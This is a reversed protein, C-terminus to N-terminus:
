NEYEVYYENVMHKFNKFNVKNGKLIKYAKEITNVEEVEYYWNVLEFLNKENYGYENMENMMNEITLKNTNTMKNEEKM